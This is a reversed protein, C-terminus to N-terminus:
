DVPIVFHACKVENNEKYVSVQEFQIPTRDINIKNEVCYKKAATFLNQLKKIDTAREASGDDTKRTKVEIFCLTNGHHPKTHWAVIDLEGGRANYNRSVIDYNNEILFLSAEEEGWDGFSRKATKVM